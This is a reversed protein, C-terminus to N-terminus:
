LGFEQATPLRGEDVAAMSTTVIAGSVAGTGALAEGEKTAGVVAGQITKAKASAPFELGTRSSWLKVRKQFSAASEGIKLSPINSRIKLFDENFVEKKTAM